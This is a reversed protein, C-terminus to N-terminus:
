EGEAQEDAETPEFPDKITGFGGGAAEQVKAREARVASLEEKAEDLITREKRM